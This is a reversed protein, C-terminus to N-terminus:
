LFYDNFARLFDNIAISANKDINLADHVENEILSFDVDVGASILKHAYHIGEDRLIEAEGVQIHVKNINSFPKFVDHHALAPSNYENSISQPVYKLFSRVLESQSSFPPLVDCTRNYTISPFTSTMDCWPSVFSAFAPLQINLGQKQLYIIHLLLANLSNGGASDGTIAINKASIGLEETLYLYASIADQLPAPHGNIGDSLRYNIALTKIGFKRTIYAGSPLSLPHESIYGGGHIFLLVKENKLNDYNIGDDKKYIWFSPLITPKVKDGAVLCEGSYVKDNTSPKILAVKYDIDSTIHNNVGKMRDEISLSPRLSWQFSTTSYCRALGVRIYRFISWKSSPSKRNYYTLLSKLVNTPGYIFYFRILTIFHKFNFSFKKTPRLENLENSLKPVSNIVSTM